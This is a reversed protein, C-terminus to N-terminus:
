FNNKKFNKEERRSTSLQESWWELIYKASVILPNLLFTHRGINIIATPNRDPM